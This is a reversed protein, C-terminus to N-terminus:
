VIKADRAMGWFISDTDDLLNAPSDFERIEGQDLVLVRYFFYPTAYPLCLINLSYIFYSM